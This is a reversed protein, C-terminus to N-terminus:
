GLEAAHCLLRDDDARALPPLGEQARLVSSYNGACQICGLNCTNSLAFELKVPPPDDVPIAFTDFKTIDNGLINGANLAWQCSECGPPFVDNRLM